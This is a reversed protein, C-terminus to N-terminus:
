GKVAGFALGRVLFPQIAFGIVFMPIMAIVAAASSSGWDVSVTGIFFPVVLERFVYRDLKM